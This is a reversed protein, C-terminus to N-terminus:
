FSIKGEIRICQPGNPGWVVSGLESGGTSPSPDLEGALGHPEVSGRRAQFDHLSLIIVISYHAHIPM